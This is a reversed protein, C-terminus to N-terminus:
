PSRLAALGPHEALGSAGHVMWVIAVAMTPGHLGSLRLPEIGPFDLVVSWDTPDPYIATAQRPYFSLWRGNVECIIRESTVLGTAATFERWMPISAALAAARRNSNSLATLAYGAAMFPVSGLFVGTTHIYGSHTGYYRSYFVPMQLHAREGPQLVPGWLRLEQMNAGAKLQNLLDRAATWSGQLEARWSEARELDRRERSTYRGRARRRYGYAKWGFVGTLVLGVPLVVVLSISLLVIHAPYPGGPQHRPHAQYFHWDAAFSVIISVVAGVTLAASAILATLQRAPYRVGVTLSVRDPQM